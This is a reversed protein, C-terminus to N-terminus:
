LHKFKRYLNIGLSVVAWVSFAILLASFCYGSIQIVYEM